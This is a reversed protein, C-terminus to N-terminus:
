YRYSSEQRHRDLALELIRDVLEHFPVGSAEFMKPFGSTETFGPITNLENVLVREGDEVFFDVRAFGACGVATYVQGALERVREIVDAELRPPMVLEMGGPTYKAEYDYWDAHAEIEGPQSVILEGNGIVACEVEMGASMREVLAVPDHEFSVALAGPLEDATSVKSIGVSSGLRAPKVFLPLGLRGVVGDPDAGQRMPAYEVQPLGRTAMLEKFLAKDMCLASCLVGAGTYPVGITELLGQVTGDEGFPGHLVPFVVDAGLLGTGPSLTVTEGECSWHGDRAIEVTLVEHGAQELGDRVSAASRLSVEHESSRGGALVAVRM